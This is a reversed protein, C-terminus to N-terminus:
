QAVELFRAVRIFSYKVKGVEITTNPEFCIFDGHDLKIAEGYHLTICDGPRCEKSVKSGNQTIVVYTGNIKRIKMGDKAYANCAWYGEADQAIWLYNEVARSVKAPDDARLVYLSKILNGNGDRLIYSNVAKQNIGEGNKYDAGKSLIDYFILWAKAKSPADCWPCRHGQETKRPYHWAGCHPCQTLKNSAELLAYAFEKASPRVLRNRKGDVFCTRFLQKLKDTFVVDASVMNTSNDDTVYDYTGALAAEEEPSGALIDDSIYPHGVRLLEFLIVALSYRDSLLDPNRQRSVVEPAMYRPSGLVAATGKGAVYMNDTGIIQTSIGTQSRKVLIKGGSIDCYSFNRQEFIEFANAISYGILLRERLGLGQNYWESFSMETDPILYANLPKHDKVKKTVYGIYPKAIIDEISIFPSALKANQIFRLRDLIDEDLVHAGKPDYLKILKEGSSDEYVVGQAGCGALKGLRYTHGSVTVIEEGTLNQMGENM